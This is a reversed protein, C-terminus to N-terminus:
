RIQLAERALAENRLRQVQRAYIQKRAQIGMRERLEDEVWPLEPVTGAPVRDALYGLLYRGEEGLVATTEGVRLSALAPGLVPQVTLLRREPYYNAALEQSTAPDAA